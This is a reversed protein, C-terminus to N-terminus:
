SEDLTAEICEDDYIEKLHISRDHKRTYMLNNDIYELEEKGFDSNSANASIYCCEQCIYKLGLGKRKFKILSDTEKGCLDCRLHELDVTIAEESKLSGADLRIKYEDTTILEKVGYQNVLKKM